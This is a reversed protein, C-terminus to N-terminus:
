STPAQDDVKTIERNGGVIWNKADLMFDALTKSQGITTMRQLEVLRDLAMTQIEETRRVQNEYRAEAREVREELKKVYPHDYIELNGASSRPERTNLPPVDDPKIDHSTAVPRPQDIGTAPENTSKEQTEEGFHQASTTAAPGSEDRGTAVPMTEGMEQIQAIHRSVSYPAVLFKDGYTTAVRRSDLHGSVCYRQLTRITRPHGAHDYRQAVEEISLTYDHDLDTAVHRPEDRGTAGGGFIENDM